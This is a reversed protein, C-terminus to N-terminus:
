SRAIGLRCRQASLARTIDRGKFIMRGADPALTGAVVGFLTTKGAGNPGLM